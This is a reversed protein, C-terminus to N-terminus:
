ALGLDGEFQGAELRERVTTLFRAADAGDVIRHDYTLALYVMSRVAIVEGLDPDQVVVPRKVVSGTGLIAVQPQNIIPTDFLAGRSGTNTLTFTGGGLEDPAVKKGRTREALDAIKRALGAINLDGAGHIVPVILGQETDVAIGLNEADHYTVTGAEMDVSSNVSPYAKLAEVAAKAFFPLFSLKVGERTQFDRKARDRLKAIRTVDVEVVTTLQASVALSEVMRQAIVKRLRPMKETRGRLSTDQQAAPSPTAPRGAAAPASAPAPAAAPAEAPAAAQEAVALVDQKRIRGGVGTGTVSNLDVGHEAALRRVLPTVYTGSGDAPAPAPAAPAPSSAAAAAPAPSPQTPPTKQQEAVTEAAGSGYDAGAPVSPPAGPPASPAPAAQVPSEEQRPAQQQPTEQAAPAPAAPAPAGGGAAGSGIVALEAGVEVTEDENVSISLLTGSVPAPIETDVKDTSVELLPEDATVEDGVAKLWRTVTGETVSEGLAPMTVPTGEGGGQGGGQDGGGQGGDGAPAATAPEPQQEDAPGPAADEVQDVPTQPTTADDASAPGAAAGGDGDGGIVALEAGVEVTEDESVLIKSLVGAAPSPIETDVKDTSVELLPEDVEVQEGEQKLWRTVTGETVSEGLAPMTVSTPM